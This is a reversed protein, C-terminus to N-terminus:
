VAFTFLIPDWVTASFMDHGRVSFDAQYRNSYGFYTAFKVNNFINNHKSQVVKQNISHVNSTSCCVNRAVTQCACIEDGLPQVINKYKNTVVGIHAPWINRALQLSTCSKDIHLTYIATAMYAIVLQVL